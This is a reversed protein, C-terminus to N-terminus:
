GRFYSKVIIVDTASRTWVQMLYHANKREIGGTNAVKKKEGPWLDPHFVVIIPCSDISDSDISLSMRKNEKNRLVEGWSSEASQNRQNISWFRGVM